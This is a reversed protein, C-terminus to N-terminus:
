ENLDQIKNWVEGTCVYLGNDGSDTTYNEVTAMYGRLYSNPLIPLEGESDYIQRVSVETKGSTMLRNAATSLALLYMDRADSDSATSAAEIKEILNTIDLPM